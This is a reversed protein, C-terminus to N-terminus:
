NIFVLKEVDFLGRDCLKLKPIVLLSMFLLTTFPSQLTVRLHKAEKARAINMM